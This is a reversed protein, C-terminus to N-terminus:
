NSVKLIIDTDEIKDLYKYTVYKKNPSKIRHLITTAKIGTITSAQCLSSYIKEDIKVYRANTPRKWKNKDGIKKKTKDSHKKGYFPNKDGTKDHKGMKSSDKVKYKPMNKFRDSAYYISLSKKLKNNRSESGSKGYMSNKDGFRSYKKREEETLSDYYKKLGNSVKKKLENKGEETLNSYQDGCYGRKAYGANAYKISKVVNLKEQYYLERKLLDEHEINFYSELIVFNFTEPREIVAKKWEQQLLYKKNNTKCNLSGYYTGEGKWNRKSGIYKIKTITDEIIYVIHLKLEKKM